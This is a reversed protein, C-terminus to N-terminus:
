EMSVTLEVQVTVALQGASIPVNSQALADGGGGLGMPQPYISQDGVQVTVSQVDVISKGMINAMEKAQEMANNYALKRAESIAKSKDAVDFQIGYINNAGSRTAEGILKGMQTLERLTINLTNDVSYSIPAEKESESYPQNTYVSFNSTKVDTEEVGYKVLIDKVKKTIANNEDIAKVIDEKQTHVGMNIYAIDPTLQVVGNASVQITKIPTPDEAVQHIAEPKTKQHLFPSFATIIGAISLCLVLIFIKKNM